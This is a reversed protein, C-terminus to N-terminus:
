ARLCAHLALCSRQHLLRAAHLHAARDLLQTVPALTHPPLLPAIHINNARLVRLMLLPLGIKRSIPSRITSAAANLTTLALLSVPTCVLISSRIFVTSVLDFRNFPCPLICTCYLLLAIAYFLLIIQIMHICVQCLLADCELMTCSTVVKDCWPVLRRAM